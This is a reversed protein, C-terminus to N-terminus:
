NVPTVEYGAKRFLEVLGKDGPLHAAGVAIFTNGNEILPLARELIVQNRPNILKDRLYATLAPGPDDTPLGQVTLLWLSSLKRALYLRKLSEM